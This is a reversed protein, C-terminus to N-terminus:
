AVGPFSKLVNQKMYVSTQLCGPWQQQEKWLHHEKQNKLLHQEKPPKASLTDTSAAREPTYASNNSTLNTQKGQSIRSTHVMLSYHIENRSSRLNRRSKGMEM